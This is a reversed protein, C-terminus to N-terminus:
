DHRVGEMRPSRGVSMLAPDQTTNWPPPVPQNVLDPPETGVMATVVANTAHRVMEHVAERSLGGIHPTLVTSGRMDLLPSARPPEHAFVDIAAGRLHGSRLAAALADEDVIGGRATNVIVAGPKMRAIMTEDVLNRTQETLPLHLSLVDSQSVVEHLGVRRVEPPAVAVPDYGLMEVDFGSLRKAVLRAIRGMGLLGVTKGHLDSGSWAGTRLWRGERVSADLEPIRRLLSLMLGLAHDAVAEENTGRAITVGVGYDTAADLDISDSGIGVRSVIQLSPCAQFVARTFPDTSVIAAVCGQALEIVEAESRQRLRPARRLTLGVERLRAVEVSGEDPYDPWTVLVVREDDAGGAATTTM